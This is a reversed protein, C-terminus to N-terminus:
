KTTQSVSEKVIEGLTRLNSQQTETLSEEPIPLFNTLDANGVRIAKEKDVSYPARTNLSHATYPYSPTSEPDPVLAVPVSPKHPIGHDTLGPRQFRYPGRVGRTLLDEQFGEQFDNFATRENSREYRAM